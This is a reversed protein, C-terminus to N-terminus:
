DKTDKNEANKKIIETILSDKDELSRYHLILQAEDWSLNSMKLLREDVDDDSLDMSKDYVSLRPTYGYFEDVTVKYCRALKQIIDITPVAVGSEFSKYLEESIGIFKALETAELGNYERFQKMRNCIM